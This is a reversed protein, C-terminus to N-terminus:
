SFANASVWCSGSRCNRCSRIRCSFYLIDPADSAFLPTRAAQRCEVWPGREDRYPRRGLPYGSPACSGIWSSHAAQRFTLFHFEGNASLPHARWSYELRSTQVAHHKWGRDGFDLSRPCTLRTKTVPHTPCRSSIFLQFLFQLPQRNETEGVVIPCFFSSSRNRLSYSVDSKLSLGYHFLGCSVIWV